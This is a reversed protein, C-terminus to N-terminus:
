FPTEAVWGKAHRVRLRECVDENSGRKLKLIERITHWSNPVSYSSGEDVILIHRFFRSPM